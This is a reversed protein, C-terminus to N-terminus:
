RYWPYDNSYHWGNRRLKEACYLGKGKTKCDANIESDPLNYGWPMVSGKETRVFMFVDNGFRNPPSSANVDVIIGSTGFNNTDYMGDTGDSGGSNIISYLIGDNTIFPYRGDFNIWTYGVTGDNKKWPASSKYNCRSYTDCFVAINMYPAFYKMVYDKYPLSSDWTEYDDNDITSLKITQNLVSHAKRVNAIKSDRDAKAILTPLTMAAVVGIIGLTILVEALTFACKNFSGGRGCPPLAFIFLKKESVGIRESLSASIFEAHCFGGVEEEGLLSFQPSPNIRVGGALAGESQEPHCCENHNDFTNTMRLSIGDSQFLDASSSRLIESQEQDTLCRVRDREELRPYKAIRKTLSESVLESHCRSLNIEGCHFM